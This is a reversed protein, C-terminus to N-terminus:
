HLWQRQSQGVPRDFDRDIEMELEASVRIFEENIELNVSDGHLWRLTAGLWSARCEVETISATVATRWRTNNPDIIQVMFPAEYWGPHSLCAGCLPPEMKIMGLGIVYRGCGGCNFERWDDVWDDTKQGNRMPEGQTAHQTSSNSKSQEIASHHDASQLPVSLGPDCVLRARARSLALELNPSIGLTARDVM